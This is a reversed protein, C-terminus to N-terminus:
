RLAKVCTNLFWKSLKLYPWELYIEQKRDEAQMQKKKKKKKKTLFFINQLSLFRNKILTLKCTEILAVTGKLNLM